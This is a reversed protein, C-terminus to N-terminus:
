VVGQSAIRLRVSGFRRPGESVNCLSLSRCTDFDGEAEIMSRRPLGRFTPAPRRKRVEPMNPILEYLMCGLRFLSHTSTNSKLQRDMGLEEGATGLMTLLHTAFANLLLLRDRRDPRSTRLLSMVM